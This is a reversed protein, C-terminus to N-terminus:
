VQFITLYLRSGRLYVPGNILVTLRILSFILLALSAFLLSNNSPVNIKFILPHLYTLACLLSFQGNVIAADLGLITVSLTNELVFLLNNFVAAYTM